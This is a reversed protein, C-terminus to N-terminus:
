RLINSFDTGPSGLVGEGSVVLRITFLAGASKRQVEFSKQSDKRGREGM